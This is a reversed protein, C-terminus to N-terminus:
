LLFSLIYMDMFYESFLIKKFISYIQVIAKLFFIQNHLKGNVNEKWTVKCYIQM